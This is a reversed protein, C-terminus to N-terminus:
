LEGVMEFLVGFLSEGRQKIQPAIKGGEVVGVAAVLDEPPGQGEWAGALAKREGLLRDKVTHLGLQEMAAIIAVLKPPWRHIQILTLPLLVHRAYLHQVSRFAGAGAWSQYSLVNRLPSHIGHHNRIPFDPVLIMLPRPSSPRWRLRDKYRRHHRASREHESILHMVHREPPRELVNVRRCVCASGRAVALVPEPIVVQVEEVGNVVYVVQGYTLVPDHIVDGEGM